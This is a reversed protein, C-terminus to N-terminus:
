FYGLQKLIFQLSHSFGMDGAVSGRCVGDAGECM